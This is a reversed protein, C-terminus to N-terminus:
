NSHTKRNLLNGGVSASYTFDQDRKSDYKLLFDTNM